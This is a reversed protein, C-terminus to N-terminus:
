YRSLLYVVAVLIITLVAVIAIADAKSNDTTDPKTAKAM